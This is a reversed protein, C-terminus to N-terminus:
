KVGQEQFWKRKLLSEKQTPSAEVLFSVVLCKRELNSSDQSNWELSDQREFEM